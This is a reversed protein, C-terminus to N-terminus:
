IVSLVNFTMHNTEQGEALNSSKTFECEHAHSKNDTQTKNASLLFYLSLLLVSTVTFYLTEQNTLSKYLGHLLVHHVQRSYQYQLFLLIDGNM